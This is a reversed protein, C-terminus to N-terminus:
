PRDVRYVRVDGSQFAPDAPGPLDAEKPGYILWQAGYQQAVQRSAGHAFVTAIRLKKDDANLTAVPHGGVVRAPTRPAVYNSVDWDALIVEGPRAQQDLWRVAADVDTTSRYVPMPANMVSSNSMGALILLTATPAVAFVTRRLWAARRESLADCAAILANGAVVCLAPHLGFALRRQYPVPLYMAITGVLLWMVIGFPAVRTRLAYAGGLALLLTPGLDILLDHPAPTPLVNQARYAASWFPDFNFTQVTPWLVPLAGLTTALTGALNGLGQGTRWFVLGVLFMTVLLTPVHFAHLFAIAAGLAATALIMLPTPRPVPRLWMRALELTCAMGLPIHPAAFLLGFTNNEFSWNGAYPAHVAAAFLAFGGGFLALLM